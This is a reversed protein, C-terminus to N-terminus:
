ADFGASFIELFKRPHCEPFPMAKAGIVELDISTICTRSIWSFM